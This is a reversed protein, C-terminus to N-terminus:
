PEEASQDAHRRGTRGAPLHRRRGRLGGDGAEAEALEPFHRESRRRECGAAHRNDLYPDHLPGTFYREDAAPNGAGGEAGLRDEQQRHSGQCLAAGVERGAGASRRGAAPDRDAAECGVSEQASQSEEARHGAAGGARAVCLCVVAIGPAPLIRAELNIERRPRTTRPSSRFAPRNSGSRRLIMSRATSRIAIAGAWEPSLTPTWESRAM